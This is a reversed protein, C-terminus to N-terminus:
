SETQFAEQAPRLRCTGLTLNWRRLECASPTRKSDGQMVCLIVFGKNFILVATCNTKKM